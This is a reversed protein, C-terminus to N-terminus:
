SAGSCPRGGRPNEVDTIKWPAESPRTFRSLTVVRVQPRTTLKKTKKGYQTTRTTSFDVCQKITVSEGDDAFAVRIPRSRLTRGLGFMRVEVQEYTALLRQQNFWGLFYEKFFARTQPTAKGARWIPESRTEYEQYRRLASEYARLQRPTYKSEWSAPQTPSPRPTVAATTSSEAPPLPEPGAESQCASTLVLGAFTVAVLIGTRSQSM